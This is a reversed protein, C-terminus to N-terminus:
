NASGSTRAYQSHLQAMRGFLELINRSSHDDNIERFITDVTVALREPDEWGGFSGLAINQAAEWSNMGAAQCGRAEKDVYVLYDQM